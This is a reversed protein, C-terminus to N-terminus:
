IMRLHPRLDPAPVIHNDLTESDLMRELIGIIPLLPGFFQATDPESSSEQILLTPFNEIEFDGLWDGHKEIDIWIFYLDPRRASLTDFAERYERCIRCWDTCLCAILRTQPTAIATQLDARDTVPDLIAM